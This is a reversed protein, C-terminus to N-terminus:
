RRHRPDVGVGEGVIIEGQHHHLTGQNKKLIYLPATTYTALYPPDAPSFGPRIEVFRMVDGTTYTALYNPGQPSTQCRLSFIGKSVLGPPSKKHCRIKWLSDGREPTSEQRQKPLLPSFVGRLCFYMLFESFILYFYPINLFSM